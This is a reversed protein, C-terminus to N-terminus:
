NGLGDRIGQVVVGEGEEPMRCQACADLSQLCKIHWENRTVSPEDGVQTTSTM